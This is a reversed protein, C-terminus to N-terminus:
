EQEEEDLDEDPVLTYFIDLGLHLLRVVGQLISFYVLGMTLPYLLNLISSPQDFVQSWPVSGNLLPYISVFFSGVYIVLIVWSVIAATTAIRMIGDESSFVLGEKEENM